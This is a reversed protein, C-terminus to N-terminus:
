RELIPLGVTKTVIHRHLSHTKLFIVQPCKIYNIMLHIAWVHVLPMVVLNQSRVSVCVDGFDIIGCYIKPIITLVSSLQNLCSVFRLAQNKIYNM